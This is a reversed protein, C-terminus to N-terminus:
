GGEFFYSKEEELQWRNQMWRLVKLDIRNAINQRLRKWKAWCNWKINQYFNVQFSSCECGIEILLPKNASRFSIHNRLVECWCTGMTISNTRYLSSNAIVTHISQSQKANYMNKLTFWSQPWMQQAELLDFLAIVGAFGDVGVEESWTHSGMRARRCVLLM